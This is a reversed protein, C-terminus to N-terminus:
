HVKFLFAVLDISPSEFIRRFKRSTNIINIHMYELKLSWWCHNDKWMSWGTTAYKCKIYQVPDTERSSFYKTFSLHRFSFSQNGPSFRPFFCIIYIYALFWCKDGWVKAMRPYHIDWSGMLPGPIYLYQILILISPQLILLLLLLMFYPYNLHRSHVENIKLPTLKSDEVFLSM